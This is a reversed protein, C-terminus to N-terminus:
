FNPLLQFTLELFSIHLSNFISCGSIPVLLSDISALILLLGSRAVRLCLRQLLQHAISFMM